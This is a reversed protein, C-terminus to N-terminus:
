ITYEFLEEPSVTEAGLKGVVIGGAKNSLTCCVEPDLNCALALTFVSIVTDGAGTVDFVQQAVTPFHRIKGNKEFLSMGDKGRTILLFDSNLNKLIKKGAMELSKENKIPKGVGREAENHNPTLVTVNKYYTFHDFYPDVTVYIKNDNAVSIIKKILTKSILGKGYDSIIIADVEDANQLLFNIIKKEQSNNIVATNETDIRCIQQGGGIIRTKKITPRSQCKLILMEEDNIGLKETFLRILIEGDNDDGVMGAVLCKAGLTKINKTVNAAGGVTSRYKTVHVVPVPAEPSIRKVDGFIYEDLMLDGIVLITKESFANAINNKM